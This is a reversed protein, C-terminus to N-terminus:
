VPYGVEVSVNNFTNLSNVSVSATGYNSVAGTETFSFTVTYEGTETVTFVYHNSPNSPYVGIIQGTSSGKRLQIYGAGTNGTVTANILATRIKTTEQPTYALRSGSPSTIIMNSNFAFLGVMSGDSCRGGALYGKSGLMTSGNTCNYIGDCEYTSLSGGFTTAFFGYPTEIGSTIYSDTNSWITVNSLTVSDPSTATFPGYPRIMPRGNSSVLIGALRTQTNGWLNELHFTKVPINYMVQDGNFRGIMISSDSNTNRPTSGSMIGYGFATQSDTTKSILVLLDQLASWKSHDIPNYGTGNAQCYNIDNTATLNNAPTRNASSIIRSSYTYGEYVGIYMEDQVYGDDSTWGFAHYTADIQKKAIKVVRTGDAKQSRHIWVLPFSAMINYSTSTYNSSTGNITKSYDNDQLQLGKTTGSFQYVHNGQMFWSDEWSGYDFKTYDLRAPTMGEAKGIYTVRKDPDSENPNVEYGYFESTEISRIKEAVQSLKLGSTSPIDKQTLSTNINTMSNEFLTLSEDISRAM